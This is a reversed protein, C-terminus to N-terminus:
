GQGTEYRDASKTNMKFRAVIEWLGYFAVMFIFGEFFLNGCAFGINALIFVIIATQWSGAGVFWIMFTMLTGIAMFFILFSKRAKGADALAGLLPSLIAVFLGSISDGMGLRATNLAADAGSDWYSKFLFPFFATLVVVAFASNAWDYM